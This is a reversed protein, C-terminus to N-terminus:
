SDNHYQWKPRSKVGGATIAKQPCNNVCRFCFICNGQGQAKKHSIKLNNMPCLNCCLGCGTCDPFVIVADAFKRELKPMLRSFILGGLWSLFNFGRRVIVGNQINHCVIQLKKEANNIYWAVKKASEQKIFSINCINSPMRFHEAYIVKIADKPLLDTFARTGDGSWIWQTVLIIIKKGLILKDYKQVFERMIRPIRAGYIPYCFAIIENNEILTTFDKKEEISHCEAAIQYSFKEALWKTNGTGSFYLTLM